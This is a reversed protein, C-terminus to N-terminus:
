PKKGHLRVQPKWKAGKSPSNDTNEAQQRMMCYDFVARNVENFVVAQSQEGNVIFHPNMEKILRLYNMRKIHQEEIKHGDDPKRNLSTEASIDFLIFGDPMPFYQELPFLSGAPGPYEGRLRDTVYREFLVLGFGSEAWAKAARFRIWRDLYDLTEVIWFSLWWVDKRNRMRDGKKSAEVLSRRFRRYLPLVPEKRKLSVHVPDVKYLTSNLLKDCMLSKGSGDNGVLAITPLPYKSPRFLSKLLLAVITVSSLARAIRVRGRYVLRKEERKKCVEQFRKSQILEQILPECDMSSVRSVFDLVHSPVAIRVLLDYATSQQETSAHLWLSYLQEFQNPSRVWAAAAYRVTVWALLAGASPHRLTSTPSTKASSLLYDFLQKRTVASANVLEVFVWENNDSDFLFARYEAKVFRAGRRKLLPRHQILWGCKVFANVAISISEVLVDIDAGNYSTPLDPYDGLLVYRCGDNLTRDLASLLRGASAGMTISRKPINGSCM